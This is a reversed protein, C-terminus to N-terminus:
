VVFGMEFATTDGNSPKLGENFFGPFRGGFDGVLEIKSDRVHIRSELIIMGMGFLHPFGFPFLVLPLGFGLL